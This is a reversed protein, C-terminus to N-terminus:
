SQGGVTVGNIRITPMGVGVPVGQGNKGCTGVGKDLAEDNGVMTVNHLAKPGNGILTAGKIARTLEGNEILYACTASFTFDGNTIDVQGGGFTQAFIGRKVSRIIEEPTHDGGAMYTNTMRPMPAFRFDQRRGNGTLKAGMLSANQKDQIYGVLKGKEILTTKTTPTGEDDINLSGRRDALTGDDIVTVLPSAVAAGMLTSFASTGKRNFDGELGHGVAEHILVGPWGSGLVVDFEGAPAPAASLLDIAQKAAILAHETFFDEAALVSFEQRGGAGSSGNERRNGDQALCGVNLRILPRVDVFIDGLSTAIIVTHQECAISTSVNIIRPDYARCIADVKKLIEIKDALEADVPSATVPYLNHQQGTSALPVNTAGNSHEIIARAIGACKRLNTVNVHDTHSYGTKDGVVVRVGAGNVTSGSTSKIVGQDLAISQSSGAQFFIDCFANKGGTNKVAAGIISQVQAYSLGFLRHLESEPTAFIKM